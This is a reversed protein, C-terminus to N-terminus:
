GKNKRQSARAKVKAKIEAKHKAAGSGHAGTHYKKGRAKTKVKNPDEKKEKKAGGFHIGNMMAYLIENDSAM